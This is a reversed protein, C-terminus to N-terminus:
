VAFTVSEGRIAQMLQSVTPRHRAKGNWCAEILSRVQGLENMWIEEYMSDIEDFKGPFPNSWGKWPAVPDIAGEWLRGGLFAYLTSGLSFVDAQATTKNWDRNPHEKSAFEPSIVHYKTKCSPGGTGYDVLCTHFTDVDVSKSRCVV